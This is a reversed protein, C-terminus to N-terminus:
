GSMDVYFFAYVSSNKKWRLLVVSSNLMMGLFSNLTMGLSVWVISSNLGNAVLTVIYVTSFNVCIRTLPLPLTLTKM